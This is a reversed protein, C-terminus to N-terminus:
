WKFEINKNVRISNFFSERKKILMFFIYGVIFTNFLVMIEAVRFKIGLFSMPYTIMTLVVYLALIMSNPLLDKTTFRYKQKELEMNNLRM